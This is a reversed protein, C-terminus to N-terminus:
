TLRVTINYQVGNTLGTISTINVNVGDYQWEIFIAAGIPSYNVDKKVVNWEMFEPRKKMRLPFEYTNDTAAAGATLVIKETQSTINDAFTLTKNLATYVSDFFSNIPYLLRDIWDPAGPFDERTLRRIPPLAAM